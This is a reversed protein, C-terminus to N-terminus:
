AKPNEAAGEESVIKVKVGPALRLHGDTVVKEGPFIGEKIIIEGNQSEGQVVTRLEVTDDAKVLYVYQGSQGTQVAQSPVVVANPTVGIVLKVSVFQGPWLRRDENTFAAKLRITGTRQNVTNDLFALEGTASIVEEPPIVALVQLRKETMSQKVLDLSQEPLTFSVYVPVIQNILVLFPTDNEKVLNGAHILISGTKGDIPSIITCYNLQVRAQKIAASAGTIAADAVRIAAEDGQVAASLSKATATLRDYEEKTRVGKELLSSGRDMEAQANSAMASDKELNAKAQELQARSRAMDAEARDLAVEFPVPNITFLTQGKKVDEGENFWIRKIEGSVQAKVQIHTYAEVTGITTIETPVDKQISTAIRVPVAEQRMAPQAKADPGQGCGALLLSLAMLGAFLTHQKM